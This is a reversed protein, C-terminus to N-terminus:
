PQRGETVATLTRRIEPEEHTWNYRTEVAYRGNKGLQRIHEADFAAITRLRDAMPGPDSPIVLGCDTSTVIERVPKLDTTLVPLGAAMYDFLKNPITTQCLECDVHPIIGFDGEMLRDFREDSDIWGTFRVKDSVGNDRALDELDRRAPGDGIVLLRIQTDSSDDSAHAIAKVISDLGRLEDVIGLFVLTLQGEVGVTEEPQLNSLRAAVETEPVNGVVSIREPDVGYDTILRQRNEEAVAWVHKSRRATFREFFREM